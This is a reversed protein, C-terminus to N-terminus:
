ECMDCECGTDTIETAKNFTGSDGADSKDTKVSGHGEGPRYRVQQLNTQFSSYLDQVEQNSLARNYLRVDDIKGNFYGKYGSMGIKMDSFYTLPVVTNGAPHIQLGALQGNVYLKQEGTAKNYTGAIHYWAGVSNILDKMM